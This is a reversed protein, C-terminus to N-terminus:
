GYEKESNIFLVHNAGSVVTAPTNTNSNWKARSEGFAM